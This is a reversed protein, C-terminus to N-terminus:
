EGIEVIMDFWEGYRHGDLTADLAIISVGLPADKTATLKVPFSERSSAALTGELVPPDMKLGEATHLEVRHTQANKRFNRVHIAVDITEGRHIKVRYPEARVWYPDFWNEYNGETSLAHLADCLDLSWQRYRAIMPGPKDMVWSHGGMLLDPQLRTLLEAGLRYGEEPIASNRSCVAEHGNQKPDYPNGFINDGTFAVLQGDIKGHLCLAFETQGPMADVTFTYGEWQFTEGPKFARDVHVSDIGLGYVSVPAVYDYRMPHELKDVINDLTWVKAGWKDHLHPGDTCQDGHMHTIIVADVQKLGLRDKMMELSHDLPSATVRGCDVLLAHGSDSLILCLNPIYNAGRFKFLHPSVQRVNPVTTPKSIRDQDSPMYPLVHDTRLILREATKLKGRYEALEKQPEKVAPGHAPLMMDPEAAEMISTAEQLAYIGAGFSYDFESDFWNHMKAGALMLDGSFAYLRDAHRVLYSMAGPSSGHTEVCAFELGHWIFDDVRNFGRDLKIPRISPRVFSSGHVTWKDFLDPKMKRFTTPTEFLAREAEPAAIKAGTEKLRAYGQCLERHHGTFLVWEVHKVGIEHLHNLVSGDGLDILLAADGEKFLYVNCTDSWLYLNPFVDPAVQVLKGDSVPRTPPAGNVAGTLAIM